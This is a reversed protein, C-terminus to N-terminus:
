ELSNMIEAIYPSNIKLFSEQFHHHITKSLVLAACKIYPKVFQTTDIYDQGRLFCVQITLVNIRVNCLYSTNENIGFKQSSIKRFRM